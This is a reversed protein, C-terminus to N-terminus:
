NHDLTGPNEDFRVSCLQKPESRSKGLFSDSNNVADSEGSIRVPRFCDVEIECIRWRDKPYCGMVLLMAALSSAQNLM